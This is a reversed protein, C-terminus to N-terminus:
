IKLRINIKDLLGTLWVMAFAFVICKILGGTGESLYEPYGKNIMEYM